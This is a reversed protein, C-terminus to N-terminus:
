PLWTLGTLKYGSNNCESKESLKTQGCHPDFWWGGARLQLGVRKGIASHCSYANSTLIPLQIIQM